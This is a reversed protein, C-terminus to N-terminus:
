KKEETFGTFASCYPRYGMNSDYKYFVDYNLYTNNNIKSLQQTTIKIVTEGEDCERYTYLSWNDGGFRVSLSSGNSNYFEGAIIHENKIDFDAKWREASSSQCSIWGDSPFFEQIKKLVESTCTASEHSIAIKKESFICNNDKYKNLFELDKKEM